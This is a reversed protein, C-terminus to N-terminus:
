GFFFTKRKGKMKYGLLIVPASEKQVKNHYKEAIKNGNINNEKERRFNM